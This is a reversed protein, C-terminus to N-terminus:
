VLSSRIELSNHLFLARIAFTPSIHQIIKSITAGLAPQIVCHFHEPMIVFGFTKFAFIQKHYELCTIFFRCARTDTFVSQRGETVSTVYYVAGPIYYRRIRSM